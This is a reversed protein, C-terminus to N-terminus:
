RESGTLLTFGVSLGIAAGQTSMRVQEDDDGSRATLGRQYGFTAALEGRWRESMAAVLAVELHGGALLAFQPTPTAEPAGSVKAWTIGLEGLARVVLYPREGLRVFELGFKGAALGMNLEAPGSEGRTSLVVVGGRLRRVDLALAGGFLMTDSAPA